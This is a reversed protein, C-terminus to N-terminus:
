HLPLSGSGGGEKTRRFIKNKIHHGAATLRNHSTLYHLVRHELWHHLPVLLAALGIMFLLDKWPEGKTISYINKKFVLFIFEFLLLFVFFGIAKILGRSVKFMGLVVLAVFLFIIGLTIGMYQINNRRKTREAKEKEAKAQRQQEDGAEVQVLEKERKLTEISDKIKYYITNYKGAMAVNGTQQYLSDLRQAANRIASLQGNREGLEKVKEYYLIANKTDGSRRYFTAMHAYMSILAGENSAKEFAPLSRKLYLGASDYKGMENYIVGYAQDIIYGMGFTGLYQKLGNGAPSSMYDLAKKPEGRDLHMNLLSLYGPIKLTSFKLSDAMRISREFYSIAIDYNKKQAFLGGLNNTYIVAMYPGQKDSIHSLRDYAQKMYDIAKDYEDIKEYFDSLYLYCNRILSHNKIDEAIRLANLYNRLALIKENRALYVQGYVNHAEARLSDNTLTSALSFAQTAFSLAKNNDPIMLYLSAIHTQATAVEEEMRNQRALNYAQNLFELSKDSYEKQNAMYMNRDGNSLYSKFMLKRDRSEEAVAILQRGYEDAQQPNVNMMMRSLEDLWKVKEEATTAKALAAKVSDVAAAQQGKVEGFFLALCLFFLVTNIRNMAPLNGFLVPSTFYRELTKEVIHL